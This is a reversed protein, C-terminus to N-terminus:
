RIIVLLSPVRASRTVGQLQGLGYYARPRTPHSLFFYDRCTYFWWGAAVMGHTRRARLAGTDGALAESASLRQCHAALAQSSSSPRAAAWGGALTKPHADRLYSVQLCKPATSGKGEAGTPRLTSPMSAIASNTVHHHALQHMPQPLPTEQTSPDSQYRTEVHQRHGVFKASLQRGASGLLLM